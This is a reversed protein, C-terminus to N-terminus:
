EPPVNSARDEVTGLFLSPLLPQHVAQVSATAAGALALLLLLGWVSVVFGTVRRRYSRPEDSPLRRRSLLVSGRLEEDPIGGRRNWTPLM